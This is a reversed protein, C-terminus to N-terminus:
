QYHKKLFDSLFMKANIGNIEFGKKQLDDVLHHDYLLYPDVPYRGWLKRRFLRRLSTEAAPVLRLLSKATSMLRGSEGKNDTLSDFYGFERQRSQVYRKWFSRGQRHKLPLDRWHSVFEQDWYPLWWLKDFREYARVSNAIFKAQRERWDWNEFAEAFASAGEGSINVQDSILTRLESREGESIPRLNCHFNIIEDILCDRSITSRSFFSTPLHSGTVFDAAHGPVFICDNQLLGRDKLASVALIDQLHPLSAFGSGFSDYDQMEENLMLNRWAEGDYKVYVWEFGLADAITRSVASEGSGETGYSFCLVNKVRKEALALALMRSDYGSSLPLVLQAGNAFELMRDVVSDLVRDTAEKYDTESFSNPTRHKISFYQTARANFQGKTPSFEIYQGAEIQHMGHLLTRKGTVYGFVSFEFCGQTDAKDVGTAKSVWHADDSIFLESGVQAYFLPMSRIIDVVAYVRNGDSFVACFFGSKEGLDSKLTGAGLANTFFEEAASGVVYTFRDEASHSHREGSLFINVNSTKMTM